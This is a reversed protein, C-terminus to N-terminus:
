IEYAISTLDNEDYDENNIMDYVNKLVMGFMNYHQYNHLIMKEEIEMHPTEDDMSEFGPKGRHRKMWDCIKFEMIKNEHNNWPGPFISTDHGRIVKFKTVRSNEAVEISYKFADNTNCDIKLVAYRDHKTVEVSYRCDGCLYRHNNKVKSVIEIIQEYITNFDHSCCGEMFYKMADSEQFAGAYGSKCLEHL